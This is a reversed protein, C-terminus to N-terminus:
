HLRWRQFTASGTISFYTHICWLHTRIGMSGGCTHMYLMAAAWPTVMLTYTHEHLWWLHAHAAHCSGMSGGYTHMHLMAAAWPTVMLTCTCCPLQGHLWWLHPHEAHCSNVMEMGGPVYRTGADTPVQPMTWFDLKLLGFCWDLVFKTQGM